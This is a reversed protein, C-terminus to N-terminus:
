KWPDFTPAIEKRIVVVVDFFDSWTQSAFPGLLRSSVPGITRLKKSDLIAWAADKTSAAELSAPPADPIVTAPRAARSTYGGYATFGVAGARDGWRQVVRAGLPVQPLSGRQLAAHVTATWVVVKSRAPLRQLYWVLNQYMSEDRTSTASSQQRGAYRAFSDLMVRDVADFPLRSAAADAANRACQLLRLKEPEDFPNKADYTYGLHRSVTERCATATNESSAAAVLRPLESMAYHSTISSQDDIGGITVRRATAAEFLAGRWPALERTLWFRGIADDLQQPTAAGTKAAREFGLFDYIPAEFLIATFGCQSILRDAIKSKAEFGQAEGHSPLEGLLVIQKQCVARVVGDVVSQETSEGARAGAGAPALAAFALYAILPGCIRRHTRSM